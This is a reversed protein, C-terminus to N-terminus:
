TKNEGEIIMENEEVGTRFEKERMTFDVTTFQPKVTEESGKFM